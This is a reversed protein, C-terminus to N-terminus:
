YYSNHWVGLTAFIPPAACMIGALIMRGRAADNGLELMSSWPCQPDYRVDVKAGVPYRAVIEGAETKSRSMRTAQIANSTFHTGEADYSYSVHPAYLGRGSRRVESSEITGSVHPWDVAASARRMALLGDAIFYAALPFVPVGMAGVFGLWEAVMPSWQGTSGSRWVLGAGILAAVLAAYRLLTDRDTAAM